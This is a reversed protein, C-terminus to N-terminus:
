ASPLCVEVVSTLPWSISDVGQVLPMGDVFANVNLVMTQMLVQVIHFRQSCGASNYNFGAIPTSFLSPPIRFTFWAVPPHAVTGLRRSHVM